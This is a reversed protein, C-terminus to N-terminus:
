PPGLSPPKFMTWYSPKFMYLISLLVCDLWNNSVYYSREREIYIYVYVREREIYIYIYICVYTATSVCRKLPFMPRATRRCVSIHWNIGQYYWIIMKKDKQKCRGAQRKGLLVTKILTGCRPGLTFRTLQIIVWPLLSSIIMSYLYITIYYYRICYLLITIFITIYYYLLIQYLIFVIIYLLISIDSYHYYYYYLLEYVLIM